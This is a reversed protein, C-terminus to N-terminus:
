TITKKDYGNYADVMYGRPGASFPLLPRAEQLRNKFKKFISM